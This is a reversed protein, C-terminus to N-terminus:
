IRHTKGWHSWVPGLAVLGERWGESAACSFCQSPKLLWVALLLSGMLIFNKELLFIHRKKKWGESKCGGKAESEATGAEVAASVSALRRHRPFKSEFPDLM